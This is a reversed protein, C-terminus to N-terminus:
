KKPIVQYIFNELEPSIPWPNKVTEHFEQLNKKFQELWDM